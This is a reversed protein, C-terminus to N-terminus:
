LSKIYEIMITRNSFADRKQNKLIDKFNLGISFGKGVSIRAGSNLYGRGKGLARSDNLGFNYEALISINPGVSKEAGIFLNPDKDGDGYELSYNIGGHISFNGFLRYNKSAAAYFGTSKISYRHLDKAYYENGQTDFGLAIAPLISTENIIRLRVRFGPISNWIPKESGIINTGGYSVGFMLYNFAGISVASLLGGDQFFIMDLAFDGHSIMGATPIDILYRPEFKAASGSSGQSMSQSILIIYLIILHKM